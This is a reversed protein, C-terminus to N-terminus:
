ALSCTAMVGKGESSMLPISFACITELDTFGFYDDHGATAIEENLYRLEQVLVRVEGAKNIQGSHLRNQIAAIATGTPNLLHGM